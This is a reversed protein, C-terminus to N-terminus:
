QFGEAKLQEYGGLNEVHQYGLKELEAKAIASRRGRRCYVYITQQKDNTLRSIQEGIQDYPIHVASQLHGANFEDAARVDILIAHSNQQLMQPTIKAAAAFSFTSLALLLGSVMLKISRM